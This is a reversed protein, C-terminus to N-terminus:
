CAERLKFYVNQNCESCSLKPYKFPQALTSLPKVEYRRYDFFRFRDFACLVTRETMKRSKTTMLDQSYIAAQNQYLCSKSNLM